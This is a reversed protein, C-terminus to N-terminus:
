LSIPEWWLSSGWCNRDIINFLKRIFFLLPQIMSWILNETTIMSYQAAWTKLRQACIWDIKGIDQSQELTSQVNLWTRELLRFTPSSWAIDLKLASLTSTHNIGSETMLDQRLPQRGGLICFGSPWPNSRNTLQYGEKSLFLVSFIEFQRTCLILLFLVASPRFHTKLKILSMVLSDTNCLIEKFWKM